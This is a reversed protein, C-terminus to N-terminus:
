DSSMPWGTYVPKIGMLKGMQISKGEKVIKDNGTINEKPSELDYKDLM